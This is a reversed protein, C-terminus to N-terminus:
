ESQLVCFMVLWTVQLEDFVETAVILVPPRAVAVAGPLVVMEAVWDPTVPLAVSVTCLVGSAM